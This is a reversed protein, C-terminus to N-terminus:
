PWFVAIAPNKLGQVPTPLPRSPNKLLSNDKLGSPQPDADASSMLSRRSCSPDGHVGRGLGEIGQMRESVREVPAEVV